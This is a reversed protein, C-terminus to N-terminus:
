KRVGELVTAGCMTGIGGVNVAMGITPNNPIQRAAPATGTLQLFLEGIQAAGTAGVPHGKGKLGGSSNVPYKGEIATEGAVTAPGAKGPEYLGIAELIMLEAITFCDHLEIAQMDTVSKGAEKLARAAAKTVGPMEHLVKRRHLFMQDSVLARGMVRLYPKGSAEAVDEPVVILGAAGDTIPSCDFLRLPDAVMISNEVIAPTIEMQFQANPNKSANRHNKVAVATLMERTTGLAAMHSKAMLAYLLPFTAGQDAEYERESAAALAATAGDGSVDTMKEFGGAFVIKHRGSAIDDCAANFAVSASACAGEHRSAPVGPIGMADAAYAGINEQGTFMGSTMAGIHIAEIDKMGIGASAITARAAKAILDRASLEWESGWPSMGFGIICPVQSM